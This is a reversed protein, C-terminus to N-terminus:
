APHFGFHLDFVRRLFPTLIWTWFVFGVYTAPSRAYCFAAVLLCGLPFTITLARGGGGTLAITVYFSFAAVAAWAALDSNSVTARWQRLRHGRHPRPAADVSRVTSLMSSSSRGRTTSCDAADRIRRAAGACSGGRPSSRM